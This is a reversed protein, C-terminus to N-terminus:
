VVRTDFDQIWEIHTVIGMELLKNAINNDSISGFEAKYAHEVQAPSLIKTKFFTKLADDVPIEKKM